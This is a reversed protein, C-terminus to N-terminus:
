SLGVLPGVSPRVPHSTLTGVIDFAFSARRLFWAAATVAHTEATILISPRTSPFHENVLVAGAHLLHVLLAQNDNKPSLTHM